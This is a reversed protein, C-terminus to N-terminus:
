VARRRERDGRDRKLREEARSRCLAFWTSGSGSMLVGAPKQEALRDRFRILEPCLRRAPEELRNFLARGIGEINGEGVAGRIDEGSAPQAPVTVERYVDRTSLGFPPCLLVLDLTKKCDLPAVMEGRGTCWAATGGFFFPVDSGLRAGMCSRAVTPVAFEPQEAIDAPEVLNLM